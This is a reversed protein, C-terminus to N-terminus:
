PGFVHVVGHVDDRDLPRAQIPSVDGLPAIAVARPIQQILQTLGDRGGSPGLRARYIRDGKEYSIWYTGNVLIPQSPTEIGGASFVLMPGRRWHSLDESLYAYKRPRQQALAFYTGDAPQNCVAFSYVGDLGALPEDRRTWHLLDRSTLLGLKQDSYFGTMGRYIAHYVGNRQVIAPCTTILPDWKGPRGQIAPNSAAKDWHLLDKSTALGIAAGRGDKGTYLMVYTGGHKAVVPLKAARHDWTGPPGARLVPNGESKTWKLLDTSVALGVQEQGSASEAEYFCYFRGDGVYVFPNDVAVHDWAGRPGLDIVPVGAPDEIWIGDPPAAASHRTASMLTLATCICVPASFM